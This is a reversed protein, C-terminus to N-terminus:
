PKGLSRLKETIAEEIFDSRCSWRKTREVLKDIHDAADRSIMAYEYPLPGFEKILEQKLREFFVMDALEEELWMWLRDETGLPFIIGYGLSKKAEELHSFFEARKNAYEKPLVLSRRYLNILFKPTECLRLCDDKINWEVSGWDLLVKLNKRWTRESRAKPRFGTFPYFVKLLFKRTEPEMEDFWDEDYREPSIYEEENAMDSVLVGETGKYIINELITRM